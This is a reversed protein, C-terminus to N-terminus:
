HVMSGMWQVLDLLDAFNEAITSSIMREWPAWGFWYLARDVLTGVAVPDRPNPMTKTPERDALQWTSHLNEKKIM